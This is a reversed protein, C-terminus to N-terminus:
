PLYKLHNQQNGADQTQGEGRKRESSSARRARPRHTSPSSLCTNAKQGTRGHDLLTKGMSSAKWSCEGWGWGAGSDPTRGIRCLMEKNGGQSCSTWLSGLASSVKPCFSFREAEQLQAKRLVDMSTMNTGSGPGKM